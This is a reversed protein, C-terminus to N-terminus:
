AQAFSIKPFTGHHIMAIIFCFGYLVAFLTVLCWFVITITGLINGAAAMKSDPNKRQGIKAFIMALLGFFLNSSTLHTLIGFVLSLIGFVPNPKKEKVAVQEQINLVSNDM